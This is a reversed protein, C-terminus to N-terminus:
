LGIDEAVFSPFSSSPSTTNPFSNFGSSDIQALLDEYFQENSLSFMSMLNDVTYASEGANSNRRESRDEIAVRVRHIIRGCSEAPPLRMAFKELLREALILDGHVQDYKILATEWNEKNTVFVLALGAAFVSILNLWNFSLKQQNSLNTFQQLANAAADALTRLHELPPEPWLPSPRFLLILLNYYNLDFWATTLHPILTFQSENLPFPMTRRWEILALHLDKVMSTRQEDSVKSSRKVTYVKELISGAISRLKVIHLTVKLFPEDTAFFGVDIDKNRLALPRGLTTSVVRDMMYLSWFIRKYHEQDKIESGELAKQTHLGMGLAMRAAIGVLYWTDPGLRNFFSYSVLLLLAELATRNGAGLNYNLYQMAKKWCAIAEDESSITISAMATSGIALVMYYQFLWRPDAALPANNGLVETLEMDLIFQERDVVPYLTHSHCWYFEVIQAAREPNPLPADSLSPEPILEGHSNRRSRYIKSWDHRKKLDMQNVISHTLEAFEVGSGPGLYHGEVGLSLAGFDESLEDRYSESYSGSRVTDVAIEHSAHSSEPSPLRQLRRLREVEDELGKVYSVKYYGVTANAYECKADASLCASCCPLTKDCKKKRRHCRECAQSAQPNEKSDM